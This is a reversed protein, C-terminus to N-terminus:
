GKVEGDESIIDVYRTDYKFPKFPRGGSVYFKSFYELYQLRATHVYTGIVNIGMNFTHGFVFIVLFAFINGPLSGLINVVSAIVTTALMLAMLRTYSLIDGLWSTINYLSAIGGLLKSVVGKKARGQTLILAAIGAFLVLPTGKLVFVAIGGFLLWWSGVDFLADLPHGDRFCMYIHICMGVFLQVAGMIVSLYLIKLPDTLPDLVPVYLVFDEMGLFKEAVVSIADGFISGSLFGWVAASIGCITALQLINGLVGKPHFRRIVIQSLVILVIGYAVDGFMMGYFITFFPFILPNPDIGGYAPLSYMETVMDMSRIWKRNRLQTPPVEEEDPDLIEMACAFSNLEAELKHVDPAPIWGKLYILTGTTALRSRAEEKALEQAMQDICVQLDHRFCLYSVIEAELNEKRRELEAIQMDIMNINAEASGTIDKLAAQNFSFPRLVETVKEAEEKHYLLLLYHQEKDSSAHFCAAALEQEALNKQLEELSIVAPCVGFIIRTFETERLSLDLNISNWPLLGLRQSELRNKQSSIQGLQRSCGNIAEAKEFISAQYNKDCFIEERIEKREVFIGQKVSAYKRLTDFATTVSAARYKANSLASEERKILATWKQDALESDLEIIEVCGARQLHKLLNDKDEALSLLNLRKMKVIAM